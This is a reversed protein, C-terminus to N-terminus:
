KKRQKAFFTKVRELTDCEEPARDFRIRLIRPFRLALGSTYTPSRQIEEYAVEVVLKPKIQVHKGKEKLIYPKLERTLQQFTVGKGKEKIGTGVKGVELFNGNKRCALDFSSLWTARKGEGWQAGIIVLDLTEMIPKYKVWGEVRRGPQYVADLKKVMVGENGTKLAEKYFLEAEKESATILKQTLVIKWKDQKIIRELIKRREKLPKAILSKGNCYLIDFINVEVPFEKAIKEIDYKRKIRQSINQFPLYKKTKPSYGALETDLIYSNAKVNKELIPLIEAFQKTVNEMRRTFIKIDGGKKHVQCNHLSVLSTCYSEDGEVQLNYLKIRPDRRILERLELIKIYFKGNIIKYHKSSKPILIKYYTKGMIRFKSIGYLKKFKLALLQIFMALDREKTVISARGISDIHGDSELYGKIFSDFQEKNIGLFWRPIKKGAWEERFNKSIWIRFPKDRFYLNILNGQMSKTVNKIGFKEKINNFYYNCLEFETKRNFLLGVRETNHYNNTFGDGIWFGLFRLFFPGVKIKKTYGSDDSLILYDKLKSAEKIKPIPFALIDKKTVKEVPVWVEKNDRLVLIKHGESVRFKGGLFTQLEFLKEGKEKARKNLAIVKKFYGNHTLVKDGKKLDKVSIYGKNLCYIPTHGTICRFGDLKYEFQAPKGVAKLAEEISEVRIALMVEIPRGVGLSIKSLQKKKAKKAVEVYDVLVSFAKEVDKVNVNYAQAIADRVIGQAVGIRLEELVTRVIYRAELPKASSLLEAVLSIKKAVTGEGTLESMKRLNDFVKEVNLGRLTLTRQKKERILQEAVIGLDGTKRWLSIVKEKPNGTALAIAKLMLKSSMGIKREDWPAFVRGQILYMLQELDQDSAGKLLKALIAAKELRKSTAELAEYVSALESYLM